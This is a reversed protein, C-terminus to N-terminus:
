QHGENQGGTAAPAAAGIATTTTTTTTAAAAIAARAPEFGDDVHVFGIFADTGADGRM